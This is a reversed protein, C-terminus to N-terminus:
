AKPPTARRVIQTLEGDSFDSHPGLHVKVVRDVSGDIEHLALLTRLGQEKLVLEALLPCVNAYRKERGVIHAYDFLFAAALTTEKSREMSIADRTAARAFAERVQEESGERLVKAFDKMEQLTARIGAAKEEPTKGSTSM